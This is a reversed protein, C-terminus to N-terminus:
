SNQSQHSIHGRTGPGQECCGLSLLLKEEKAGTVNPAPYDQAIPSDQANCSTLLM